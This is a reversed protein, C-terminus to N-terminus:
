AAKNIAPIAPGALIAFIEWGDSGVENLLRSAEQLGDDKDPIGFNQICYEWEM